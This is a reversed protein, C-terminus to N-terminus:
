QHRARGWAGRTNGQFNAHGLAEGVGPQRAVVNRTSTGGCCTFEQLSVGALGVTEFYRAIHAQAAVHRPPPAPMGLTCDIAQMACPVPVCFRVARPERCGHTTCSLEDM